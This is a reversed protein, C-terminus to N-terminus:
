GPRRPTATRRRLGAPRPASGAQADRKDSGIAGSISRMASRGIASADTRSRSMTDTAGSVETKGSQTQQEEPRLTEAGLRQGAFDEMEAGHRDGRLRQQHDRGGYHEAQQQKQEELMREEALRQAGSDTLRTPARMTPIRGALVAVSANRSAESSPAMM